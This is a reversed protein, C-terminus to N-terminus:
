KHKQNTYVFGLFFCDKLGKFLFSPSILFSLDPAKAIQIYDITNFLVQHDELCTSLHHCAGVKLEKISTSSLYVDSAKLPTQAIEIVNKM